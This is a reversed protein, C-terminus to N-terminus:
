IYGDHNEQMSTKRCSRKWNWEINSSAEYIDKSMLWQCSWGGYATSLVDRADWAGTPWSHVSPHIHIFCIMTLFGPDFCWYTLCCGWGTPVAVSPTALPESSSCTTFKTYSKFGHFYEIDPEEPFIPLSAPFWENFFINTLLPGTM